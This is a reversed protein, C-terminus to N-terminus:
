LDETFTQPSVFFILDTVRVSGTATRPFQHGDVEEVTGSAITGTAPHYFQIREGVDPIDLEPEKKREKKPVRVYLLQPGRSLGYMHRGADITKFAHSKRGNGKAFLKNKESVHVFDTTQISSNMGHFRVAKNKSRPDVFLIPLVTYPSGDEVLGALQDEQRDVGDAIQYERGKIDKLTPGTETKSFQSYNPFLRRAHYEDSREGKKPERDDYPVPDWDSTSSRSWSSRPSAIGKSKSLM